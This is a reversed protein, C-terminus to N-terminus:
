GARRGLIAGVGGSRRLLVAALAFTVWPILLLFVAVANGSPDVVRRLKGLIYLPVTTSQGAVFPTILTEDFSFAFALLAAGLIAPAVNPLTVRTLVQAPGAGLDRAAAELEIDFSRLSSVVVLVVWPVAIIVHAAVIMPTGPSVSTLIMFAVFGIGLFLGPLMVPLRAFAQTAGVVRSPVRTFVFAAATGVVTSILASTLAIVMSTTFANRFGRDTLVVDFWHLSWGQFPWALSSSESFAYLVAVMLPAFLFLIILWTSIALWPVHVGARVM